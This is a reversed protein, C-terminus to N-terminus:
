EIFVHKFLLISVAVIALLFALLLKLESVIELFGLGAIIKGAAQTGPILIPVSVPFFLFSLLLTKGESYMIIASVISGVIALDIVGLVFVFMLSPVISLPINLFFTSSLITAILVTFLIVASYFMKGILIAYSPCPLSRLGEITGRDVERSFSTTLTLISSFYIIIWLTASVVEPSLILMGRWAFSSILISTLAFALISMFEHVRRFEIVLDKRALKLSLHIISNDVM